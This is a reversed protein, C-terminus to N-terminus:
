SPAPTRLKGVDSQSPYPKQFQESKLYYPFLSTWNWGPNGLIDQWADIQAHHPRLYTQGAVCIEDACESQALAITM